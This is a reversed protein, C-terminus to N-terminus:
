SDWASNQLCGNERRLDCWTLLMFRLRLRACPWGAAACAAWGAMRSPARSGPGSESAADVKMTLDSDAGGTDAAATAAGGSRSALGPWGSDPSEELESSDGSVV